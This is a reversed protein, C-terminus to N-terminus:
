SKSQLLRVMIARREGATMGAWGIIENITRGCGVCVDNHDLTCKRVCPSEIVPTRM